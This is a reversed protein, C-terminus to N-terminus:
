IRLNTYTKFTILFVVKGLLDHNVSFGDSILTCLIYSQLINVGLHCMQIV